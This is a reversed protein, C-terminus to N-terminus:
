RTRSLSMSMACRFGIDNDSKHRDLYRRSSPHTWYIPDKWSGGKYVRNDPHKHYQPLFVDLVNVSDIRNLNGRTTYQDIVWENVNGAMNYLGFDNAAFFGVPVTRLYVNNKTDSSSNNYNAELQCQQQDTLREYTTTAWPYIKIKNAPENKKRAYAAFEWEDESPLRFTPFLGIYTAALNDRLGTYFRESKFVANEVSELDTM